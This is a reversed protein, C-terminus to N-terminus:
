MEVGGFRDQFGKLRLRPDIMRKRECPQAGKRNDYEPEGRNDLGNVNYNSTGYRRSSM